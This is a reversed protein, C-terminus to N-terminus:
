CGIATDGDLARALNLAADRVVEGPLSSLVAPAAQTAFREAVRTRAGDLEEQSIKM